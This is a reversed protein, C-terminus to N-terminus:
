FSESANELLTAKKKIDEKHNTVWNILNHHWSDHEKNENNHITQKIEEWLPDYMWRLAVEIEGREKDKKSSNTINDSKSDNDNNDNASNSDDNTNNSKDTSSVTNNSNSKSNDKLTYFKRSIKGYVDIDKLPICVSGIYDNKFGIRDYDEVRLELEYGNCTGCPLTFQENWIPNLTQKKTTTIAIWKNSSTSTNSTSSSTNSSSTQSSQLTKTFKMKVLPDSSNASLINYDCALLHKGSLIVVALANPEQFEGSTTGVNGRGENGAVGGGGTGASVGSGGDASISNVSDGGVSVDVGSVNSIDNTSKINNKLVQKNIDDGERYPIPGIIQGDSAHKSLILVKM